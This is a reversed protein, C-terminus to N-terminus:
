RSSGAGYTGRRMVLAAIRRTVGAPMMESFTAALGNLAGPVVRSRRRDHADLAAVAVDDPSQWLFGPVDTSSVGARAQFETRTFGPCLVTMTVGSGKLEEHVAESFSTVFAKTAAYTSTDPTPQFGAVSSVNIIGGRGRALMPGLAAHTLRVLALVNLRIQREEGDVPLFAFPGASGVGANNVLLDVPRDRDALRAEVTALQAPDVLDAATVEARTGSATELEAALADLRGADRAVLVLDHGRDALATAFSRGIGSSAGTVLAVPNPTPPRV